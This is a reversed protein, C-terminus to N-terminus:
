QAEAEQSRWKDPIIGTFLLQLRLDARLFLWTYYLRWLGPVLGPAPLLKEQKEKTPRNSIVASIAAFLERTNLMFFTNAQPDIRTIIEKKGNTFKIMFVGRKPITLPKNQLSYPHKYVIDHRTIETVPVPIEEGSSKLIIYQAQLASVCCLLLFLLFYTPM